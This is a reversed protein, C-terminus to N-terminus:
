TNRKIKLKEMIRSAIQNMKKEKLKTNHEFGLLHLLSHTFLYCWERKSSHNNELAQSEIKEYSAFIDGLLNYGIQKKLSKFDTSFSLVDTPKNKNRYKNSIKKIENNDVIIISLETDDNIKLIKLTIKVIKKFIRKYKFNFNTKNKININVM